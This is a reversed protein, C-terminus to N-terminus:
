GCGNRLLYQSNNPNWIMQPASSNSAIEEKLTKVIQWSLDDWQKERAPFQTLARPGLLFLLFRAGNLAQASAMTSDPKRELAVIMDVLSRTDQASVPLSCYVKKVGEFTVRFSPAIIAHGTWTWEMERELAKCIEMGRPSPLRKCSLDRSYLSDAAAFSSIALLYVLCFVPLALKKM